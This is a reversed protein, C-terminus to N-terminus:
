MFKDYIPPAWLRGALPLQVRDDPKAALLRIWQALDLTQAPRFQKKTKNQKTKNQKQSLPIVLIARAPSYLLPQGQVRSLGVGMAEQISPNYAHVVKRM